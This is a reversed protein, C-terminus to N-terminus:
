IGPGRSSLQYLIWRCHLLSRNSEQTLFLGQLLSLSGVGTNKPKRQPEAPLSGGAIHSVQTQDKPQSSGRSFPFAVWELIKAQLTGHVAYDMPDCLTPCSQAVKVESLSTSFVQMYVREEQLTKLQCHHTLIITSVQLNSTLFHRMQTGLGCVTFELYM